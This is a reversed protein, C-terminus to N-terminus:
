VIMTSPPCAPKRNALALLLVFAAIQLTLLGLKFLRRLRYYFLVPRDIRNLADETSSRLGSLHVHFRLMCRLLDATEPTADVVQGAKQRQGRHPGPLITRPHYARQKSHQNSHQVEVKGVRSDGIRCISRGTLPHLGPVVDIMM